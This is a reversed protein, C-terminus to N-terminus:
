NSRRYHTNYVGNMNTQSPLDICFYILHCVRCAFFDYHIMNIERTWTNYIDTQMKVNFSSTLRM